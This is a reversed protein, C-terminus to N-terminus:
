KEEILGLQIAIDRMFKTIPRSHMEIERTYNGVILQDLKDKDGFLSQYRDLLTKRYSDNYIHKKMILEEVIDIQTDYIGQISFVENHSKYNPPVGNESFEIKIKSADRKNLYQAVTADKDEIKFQFKRLPPKSIDTYLDFCVAQNSKINNCSACVPYLNYLAISLCPYKDKSIYHDIQFKASIGGSVREVTVCLQANCYVCVKIGLKRFYGPYFDNRREEYQLKKVVTDKFNMHAANKVNLPLIEDFDKIMRDFESPKATILNRGESILANVYSRQDPDTQEDRFKTLRRVLLKIYHDISDKHSSILVEVKNQDIAIM